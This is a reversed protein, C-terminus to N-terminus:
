DEDEYKYKKRKYQKKSNMARSPRLSVIKGYRQIEEDRRAKEAFKLSNNQKKKKM